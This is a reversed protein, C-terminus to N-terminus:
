PKLRQWSPYLAPQLPTPRLQLSVPAQSEGPELKWEMDGTVGAEISKEALLKWGNGTLWESAHPHTEPSCIITRGSEAQFFARATTGPFAAALMRRGGGTGLVPIQHQIPVVADVSESSGVRRHRVGLAACRHRKSAHPTEVLDIAVTGPATRHVALVEVCAPLSVLEVLETEEPRWSLVLRSASKGRGGFVLESPNLVLPDWGGAFRFPLVACLVGETELLIAVDSVSRWQRNAAGEFHLTTWQQESVALPLSDKCAIGCGGRVATLILDGPRASSTRLRIEGQHRGTERDYQMQLVSQDWELRADQATLVESAQKARLKSLKHACESCCTISEELRGGTQLPLFSVDLSRANRSVGYRVKRFGAVEFSYMELHPKEDSQVETCVVGATALQKAFVANWSKDGVTSREPALPTVRLVSELPSRPVAPIPGESVSLSHLSLAVPKSVTEAEVANLGPWDAIEAYTLMRDTFTSQVSSQNWRGDLVAANPPLVLWHHDEDALTVRRWVTCEALFDGEHVTLAAVEPLLRDDARGKSYIPYHLTTRRGARDEWTWTRILGKGGDHFTVRRERGDSGRCMSESSDKLPTLEFPGALPDPSGTLWFPILPPDGAHSLVVLPRGGGQTQEVSAEVGDAIRYSRGTVSGAYGLEGRAWVLSEQQIAEPRLDTVVIGDRIDTAQSNGSIKTFRVSRTRFALTAQSELVSGGFSRQILPLSPQQEDDQAHCIAQLSMVVLAASLVGIRRAKVGCCPHDLQNADVTQAKGSSCQLDKKRAVCRQDAM